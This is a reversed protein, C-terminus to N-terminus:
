GGGPDAHSVHELARCSLASHHRIRGLIEDGQRVNREWRTGAWGRPTRHAPCRGFRRPCVGPSGQMVLGAQELAALSTPLAASLGAVPVIKAIPTGRETVVVEEGAKVWALCARLTAQLQAISATRM